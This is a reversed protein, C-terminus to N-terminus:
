SDRRTPHNRANDYETRKNNRTDINDTKTQEHRTFTLISIARSDNILTKYPEFDLKQSLSVVKNLSLLKLYTHPYLLGEGIPMRFHNATDM